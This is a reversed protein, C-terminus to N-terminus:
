NGMKSTLNPTRFPPTATLPIRQEDSSLTVTLQLGLWPFGFGRRVEFPYGCEQAYVM